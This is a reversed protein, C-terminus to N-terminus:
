TPLVQVLKWWRKAYIAHARKACMDMYATNTVAKLKLEAKQEVILDFVAKGLIGMKVSM